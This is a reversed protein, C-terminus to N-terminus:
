YFEVTEVLQYLENRAMQDRLGDYVGGRQVFGLYFLGGYLVVSVVIGSAGLLAVKLRGAKGSVIGWVIAAIGFPVGIMPIFSLGGIIYAASGINARHAYAPPPSAM